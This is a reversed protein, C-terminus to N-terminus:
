KSQTPDLALKLNLDKSFRASQEKHTCHKSPQTLAQSKLTLTPSLSPTQTSEGVCGLDPTGKRKGKM